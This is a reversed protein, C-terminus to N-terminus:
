RAYPSVVATYIPTVKGNSGMRLRSSFKLADASLRFDKSQAKGNSTWTVRYGTLKTGSGSYEIVTTTGDANIRVYAM